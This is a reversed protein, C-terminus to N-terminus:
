KKKFSRIKLKKLKKINMTNRDVYFMNEKNFGSGLLGEIIAQSINGGGYFVVNKM